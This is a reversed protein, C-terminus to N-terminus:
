SASVGSSYCAVKFIRESLRNRSFQWAEPARVLAGSRACDGDAFVAADGDGPLRHAM